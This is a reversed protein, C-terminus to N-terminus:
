MADQHVIEAEGNTTKEILKLAEQAGGETEPGLFEETGDSWQVFIYWERPEEWPLLESENMWGSDALLYINLIATVGSAREIIRRKGGTGGVYQVMDGVEFAFAIPAVAPPAPKVPLKAPKDRLREPMMTWTQLRWRADFEERERRRKREEIAATTTDM